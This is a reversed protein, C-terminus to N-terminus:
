SAPQAVWEDDGKGFPECRYGCSDLFAQAQGPRIGLREMRGAHQEFFIKGIRRERLLRECGQIVLTDAGEVDIKMVAFDGSVADDLRVMEVEIQTTGEHGSNM